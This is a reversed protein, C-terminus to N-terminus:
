HAAAGLASGSRDRGLAQLVREERLTGPLLYGPNLVEAVSLDGVLPKGGPCSTDQCRVIVNGIHLFSEAVSDSHSASRTSTSCNKGTGATPVCLFGAASGIGRPHTWAITQTAHFQCVKAGGVVSGLPSVAECDLGASIRVVAAPGQRLAARSTQTGGGNCRCRASISCLRCEITFQRMVSIFDPFQHLLTNVVARMHPSRVPSM